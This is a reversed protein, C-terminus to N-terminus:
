CIQGENSDVDELTISEEEMKVGRNTNKVYEKM